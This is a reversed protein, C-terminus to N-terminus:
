RCRQLNHVANKNRMKELPNQYINGIVKMETTDWENEIVNESGILKQVLAGKYWMIEYTGGMGFSGYQVIDGEFIEVDNKDLLGTSLMVIWDPHMILEGTAHNVTFAHGSENHVGFSTRMEIGDYARFKYNSM